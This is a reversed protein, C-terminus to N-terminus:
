VAGLSRTHTHLRARRHPNREDNRQDERRGTCTWCCNVSGRPRVSMGM